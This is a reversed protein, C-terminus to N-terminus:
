KKWSILSAFTKKRDVEHEKREKTILKEKGGAIKEKKKDDRTSIM